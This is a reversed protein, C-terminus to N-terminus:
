QLAADVCCKLRAYIQCGLRKGFARALECTAIEEDTRPMTHNIVELRERLAGRNTLIDLELRRRLRAMYESRRRVGVHRRPADARRGALTRQDAPGVVPRPMLPGVDDLLGGVLGCDVRPDPSFLCAELHGLAYKLAQLKIRRNNRQVQSQGAQVKLRSISLSILQELLSRGFDPGGTAAVPPCNDPPRSKAPGGAGLCRLTSCHSLESSALSGEATSQPLMPRDPSETWATRDIWRGSVSVCRSAGVPRTAAQG